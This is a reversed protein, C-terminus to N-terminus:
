KAESVGTHLAGKCYSVFAVVHGSSLGCMRLIGCESLCIPFCMVLTEGCLCVCVFSVRGAM